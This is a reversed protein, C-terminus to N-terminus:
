IVERVSLTFIHVPFLHEQYTRRNVWTYEKRAQPRALIKGKARANVIGAIVRERIINKELQSISSIITFMARGM